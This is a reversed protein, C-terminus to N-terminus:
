QVQLPTLAFPAGEQNKVQASPLGLVATIQDKVVLRFLCLELRARQSLESPAGNDPRLTLLRTSPVLTLFPSIIIRNERSERQASRHANAPATSNKKRILLNAHNSEHSGVRFNGEQNEQGEVARQMSDPGM